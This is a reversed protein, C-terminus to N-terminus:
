VVNALRRGGFLCAAWLRFSLRFKDVLFRTWDDARYNAWLKRIAPSGMLKLSHRIPLGRPVKRSCPMLRKVAM